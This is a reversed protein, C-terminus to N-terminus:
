CCGFWCNVSFQFFNWVILYNPVEIVMVQEITWQILPTGFSHEVNASCLSDESLCAKVAGKEIRWLALKPFFFLCHLLFLALIRCWNSFFFISRVRCHASIIKFRCALYLELVFCVEMMIKSDMWLLVTKGDKWESDIYYSEQRSQLWPNLYQYCVGM